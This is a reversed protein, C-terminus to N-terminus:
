LASPPTSDNEPEKPVETSAGLSQHSVAPELVERDRRWSRISLIGLLVAAPIWWPSIVVALYASVASGVAMLGALSFKGAAADQDAEAKSKWGGNEVIPDNMAGRKWRIEGM